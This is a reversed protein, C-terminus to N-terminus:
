LNFYEDLGDILKAEFRNQFNYSDLNKCKAGNVYEVEVLVSPIQESQHLVQLGKKPVNWNRESTEAKIWNDKNLNSQLTDALESDNQFRSDYCIGTGSQGPESDAHLSVFAIDEKKYKKGGKSGDELSEILNSISHQDSITQAHGSTIVVAYGKARLKDTLSEAYIKMKEYELLPAYKGNAKKIFSYSGPDFYGSRSSYGGHGPNLIIVKGNPETTPKLLETEAASIKGNEATPLPIRNIPGMDLNDKDFPINNEKCYQKFKELAEDKASKIAGSQLEKATFSTDNKTLKIKEGPNALSGTYNNTVVQGGSIEGSIIKNIITDLKETDVMGFSDFQKELEENFENRVAEPINKSEALADYVYMVAEKRKSQKSMVESTIRNILSRGDNAKEYEKLVETVNKANIEKLIDDFAKRGVAGWKDNAEYELKSAIEEPTFASGWQVMNNIPLAGIVAGAALGNLEVKDDTLAKSLTKVDPVSPASKNQKQLKAQESQSLKYPKVYFLEDKGAKYENYPKPIKNLKCFEEVSMNYKRALAYIGKGAPVTDMPFEIRTGKKILSSKLNAWKMFEENSMGLLKAYHSVQTDKRVVVFEPRKPRTSGGSNIITKQNEIYVNNQSM